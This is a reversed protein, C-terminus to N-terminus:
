PYLNLPKPIGSINNIIDTKWLKGSKTYWIRLIRPQNFWVFLPNTNLVDFYMLIHYDTNNHSLTIKAQPLQYCIYQCRYILFFWSECKKTCDFQLNLMGPINWPFDAAWFKLDESVQNFKNLMTFFRLFLNKSRYVCINLNIKIEFNCFKAKKWYIDIKM